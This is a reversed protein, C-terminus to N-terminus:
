SCGGSYGCANCTHCGGLRIMQTGCEPCFPADGMRENPPVTNYLHINDNGNSSDIAGVSTNTNPYDSGKGSSDITNTNTDTNSYSNNKENTDGFEQMLWRFIYDVISTAIPIEKNKTLGSPEFRMHTMKHALEELPVGYQLAMSTVISFANMMGGITSGEKSMIVFLEGLSGNQHMGAIIYGEYGGIIFKHTKSQRSAPLKKRYPHLAKKEYDVQTTVKNQKLPQYAKSGDRYVTISKLGMKWASIFVKEIDDVSASNPLNCTKSIAGSICPQVAQMMALHGNVSLANDGIATQLVPHKATDIGSSKLRAIAEQHCRPIQQLSDGGILNKTAQSAFIPEIGTSECDMLLSITGTPALLTVQANRPLPAINDCCGSKIGNILRTFLSRTEYSISAIKHKHLVECIYPFNHYPIHTGLRKALEVSTLYAQATVRECIEAALQRAKDSDYAIDMHVFLTALNTIGLGLPRYKRTNKAIKDTPFSSMDILIDQAIILVKVLHDLYQNHAEGWATSEPVMERIKDINISALNCASNNLFVFEGCNSVLLGGSWYTHEPADVTLDWVDENGLFIKEKITATHRRDVSEIKCAETLKKQKYIQIFGILTEFIKRDTTINLDYSQRCQYEGNAFRIKQPKNITYYSRIGLSSLMEQVTQIVKFSTAKLTVRGDVVSGNASYLGYLFAAQKVPTGFRFRDPIVRDYTHSLEGVQITTKIEWAGLKLEERERLFLPFLNTDKLWDQDYRGVILYILDNSARHVSGDGFVLGDMIDQPDYTENIIPDDGLCLDISKAKDVEVKVGNEVIRHQQTGYFSGSSTRYEYVPKQGTYRKATIKAWQQGTWIEDGIKCDSIPTIKGFSEGFSWPDNPPIRYRKIVTAWGPQCPNSAVIEGDVPCTNWKNITDSFQIGPDGCEHASQVMKRFLDRAKVKKTIDPTTRQRLIWDEDLLVAQMFEDSVRVSFNVNQYSVTKYAEGEIGGSYGADVLRKAKNEEHSKITIFDEIDPHDVDMVVMKAARRTRGGSRVVGAYADQGKIFAM